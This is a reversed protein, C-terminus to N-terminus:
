VKTKSWNLFSEKKLGMEVSGHLQPAGAGLWPHDATTEAQPSM